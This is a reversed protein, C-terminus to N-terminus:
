FRSKLIHWAAQSSYKYKEKKVTKNLQQLKERNTILDITKNIFDKEDDFECVIGSENNIVFEDAYKWRAVIVPVEAIYSDLVSGPFGETFYKTPFLFLDYEKLVTTINNPELVGCYNINGKKTNLLNEFEVKYNEQVQGYLDISIDELGIEVLKESLKFLTNVGKQHNIRAMFVLRLPDNLFGKKEFEKYYRFNHLQLVNNFSYNTVLTETLEKTQPYIGKIQNLLKRHFPLKKIFDSLWGGVVIYHIDIKKIKSIFFIFPFLFKLNNHAPLYFLIDYKSLLYWSKIITFKSAKFTQTDFYDVTMNIEAVNNKLLEYISRTKITQGDLQNNEYGFYGYVLIKKKKM